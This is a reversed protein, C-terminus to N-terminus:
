DTSIGPRGHTTRARPPQSMGRSSLVRPMWGSVSWPSPYSRRWGEPQTVSNGSVPWPWCSATTCSHSAPATGAQAVAKGRTLPLKCKTPLSWSLFFETSIGLIRWVMPAFINMCGHIYLIFNYIIHIMYLLYCTICSINHTTYWM